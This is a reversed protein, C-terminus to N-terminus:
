WFFSARMAWSAATSGFLRYQREPSIQAWASPPQPAFRDMAPTYAAADSPTYSLWPM